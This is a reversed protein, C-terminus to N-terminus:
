QEKKKYAGLCLYLIASMAVIATYIYMPSSDATNASDKDSEGSSTPAQISEDNEPVSEKVPVDAFIYTSFHDTEFTVKDETVSSTCEILMDNDVRYVKLKTKDPLTIPITLTVTVKGNLQHIIESNSNRLTLDYVAFTEIESNHSLLLKSAAAHESGSTLVSTYLSTGNKLVGDADKITISSDDKSVLETQKTLIDSVDFPNTKGQLVRLYTVLASLADQSALLNDAPGYTYAGKTTSSKFLKNMANYSAAAYESKGYQAYLALSYATSNPSDSGWSTAAGTSSSFYDAYTSAIVKDIKASLTPSSKYLNNYLYTYVVGNNDASYGYSDIGKVDTYDTIVSELVKIIKDYDAMFDKYSHVFSVLRGLHYINISHVYGWSSNERSFDNKTLNKMSDNLLSIYNVGNYNSPDKGSITLVEIFYGYCVFVPTSASYETSLNFSGDYNTVNKVAELFKNVYSDCNYGARMSLILDRAVNYFYSTSSIDLNEFDCKLVYEATAKADSQVTEISPVTVDPSTTNTDAFVPVISILILCVALFSASVRKMLKNM